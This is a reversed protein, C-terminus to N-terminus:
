TRPLELRLDLVTPQPEGGIQSTATAPDLVIASDRGGVLRKAAEGGTQGVYQGILDSPQIQESALVFWILVRKGSPFDDPRPRAVIGTFDAANGSEGQFSCSLVVEAPPSLVEETTTCTLTGANALESQPEQAEPSGLPTLLLATLLILLSVHKQKRM